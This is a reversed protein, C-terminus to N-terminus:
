EPEADAGNGQEAGSETLQIDFDDTDDQSNEPYLPVVVARLEKLRKAMSLIEQASHYEDVSVAQVGGEGNPEWLTAQKATVAVDHAQPWWYGHRKLVVSFEEFDHRRLSAKGEWYRCHCLEHDILAIRQSGTLRKWLDYALEIIFDFPIYVSEIESVLRAKGYVERGDSKQAEERMIVGIRARKLAPHWRNIAEDVLEIVDSDAKWFDAM